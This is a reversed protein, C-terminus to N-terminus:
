EPAATVAGRLRLSALDRGAVDALRDVVGVHPAEDAGYVLPFPLPPHQGEVTLHDVGRHATLEAPDGHYVVSSVSAVVQCNSM